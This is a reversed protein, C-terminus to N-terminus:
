RSTLVCHVQYHTISRQGNGACFTSQSIMRLPMLILHILRKVQRERERKRDREAETVRGGERVLANM